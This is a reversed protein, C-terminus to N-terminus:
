SSVRRGPSGTWSPQSTRPASRVGTGRAARRARRGRGRRRRPPDDVAARRRDVGGVRRAGCADEVGGPHGRVLPPDDQEVSAAHGTSSPRRARGSPDQIAPMSANRTGASTSVTSAWTPNRGTSARGPSPSAPPPARRSRGAARAGRRARRRRRADERRADGPQAGQPVLVERLSSSTTSSEGPRSPSTTSCTRRGSARAPGRPAPGASRRRPRSPPSGPRPRARRAARRPGPRVTGHRRRGDDHAGVTPRHEGVQAARHEAAPSGSASTRRRTAVTSAWSGSRPRRVQQGVRGVPRRQPLGQRLQQGHGPELRAAHHVAHKRIASGSGTRSGSAPHAPTTPAPRPRAGRARAHRAAHPTRCRARRRRRPWRPRRRPSRARRAHQDATRHGAPQGLASGARASTTSSRSSGTAAAASSLWAAPRPPPRRPGPPAPRPPPARRGRARRPRAAGPRGRRGARPRARRDVHLVRPEDRVVPAAAGRGVDRHGGDVDVGACVGPGAAACPPARGASSRRRSARTPRPRARSTLRAAM